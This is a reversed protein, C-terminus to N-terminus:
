ASVRVWGVRRMTRTYRLLGDRDLPAPGGADTLGMSMRATRPRAGGTSMLHYQLHLTADLPTALSLRIMSSRTIWNTSLCQLHMGIRDASMAWCLENRASRVTFGASRVASRLLLTM